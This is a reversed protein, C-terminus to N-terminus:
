RSDKDGEREGCGCGCGGRDRKLCVSASACGICTVGNKRQKYIYYSAAFVLTLVIGVVILDVM